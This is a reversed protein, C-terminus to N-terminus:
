YKKLLIEEFFRLAEEEGTQGLWFIANKRLAANQNTKAISILLPISQEKPLQSIAFVASKKVDHDEDSEDVVGKLAAAAEKSAKQGLWFIANKRVDRNDDRRAIRIMEQIAEEESSLSYAFVVQKRLETGKVKGSIEKLVRYSEPTKLNGIWFISNKRVRTSHDGLSVGRLFPIVKPSNHMGIVFILNNQLEGSSHEFTDALLAFSEAAEAEGLWYLPTDEFTYSREPDFVNSDVIRSEGGSMRHLLFIGAPGGENEETHVSYGDRRKGRYALRIKIEGEQVRVGYPTDSDRSDGMHINHLAPFVYGTFFLGEQNDKRFEQEAAVIKKDLSLGPKDMHQVRGKLSVEQGLGWGVGALITVLGAIWASTCRKQHTM